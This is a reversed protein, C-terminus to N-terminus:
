LCVQENKERLRENKIICYMLSAHKNESPGSESSPMRIFLPDLSNLIAGWCMIKGFVSIKKQVILRLRVLQSVILYAYINTHNSICILM